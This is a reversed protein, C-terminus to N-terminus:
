APRAGATPNGAPRTRRPGTNRSPLALPGRRPHARRRTRRRRASRGSRAAGAPASRRAVRDDDAGPRRAHGDCQSCRAAGSRLRRPRLESRARAAVRRAHRRRLHTGPELHPHCRAARRPTREPDLRDPRLGHRAGPRPRSRARRPARGGRRLRRARRCPDRGPGAIGRDAGPSPRTSGEADGDVTVRGGAGRDGRGSRAGVGPM